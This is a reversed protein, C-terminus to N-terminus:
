FVSAGKVFKGGITPNATKTHVYAVSLAHCLADRPDTQATRHHNM